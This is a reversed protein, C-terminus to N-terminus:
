FLFANVWGCVCMRNSFVKECVSEPEKERWQFIGRIGVHFCCSMELLENVCMREGNAQEKENKGNVRRREVKKDREEEVESKEESEKEKKIRRKQSRWVIKGDELLLYVRTLGNWFPLSSSLSFSSSSSSRSLTHSLTHLLSHELLSSTPPTQESHIESNQVCVDVLLGDGM